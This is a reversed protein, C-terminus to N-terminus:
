PEFTLAFSMLRRWSLIILMCCNGRRLSSRLRGMIISSIGLYQSCQTRPSINARNLSIDTKDTSLNLLALEIDL